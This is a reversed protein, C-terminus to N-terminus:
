GRPIPQGGQPQGQPQPQGGQPQGGQQPQAGEEPAPAMNMQQTKLQQNQQDLEKALSEQFGRSDFEGPHRQVWMQLTKQITSIITNNDIENGNVVGGNVLDEILLEFMKVAFEAVAENPIEGDIEKEIREILSNILGAMNTPFQAGGGDKFLKVIREFGEGYVIQVALKIMPRIPPSVDDLIPSPTRDPGGGPKSRMGEEQPKEQPQGQTPQGQTPQGGQAMAENLMGQM